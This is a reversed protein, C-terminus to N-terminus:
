FLDKETLIKFTWGKSKCYDTASSWKSTNMTYILCEQISYKKNKKLKPEKTQKSPKIEIITVEKNETEMIFDPIYLHIKNDTNSLYPIKILEFGWRTINKNEDLYKCFRREWLSRCHIDNIDGMYKNKNIPNFYTKYAM